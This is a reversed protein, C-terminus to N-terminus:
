KETHCHIGLVHLYLSTLITGQVSTSGTDGDRQQLKKIMEAKIKKNWEQKSAFELKYIKKFDESSRCLIYILPM